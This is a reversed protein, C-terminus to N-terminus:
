FLEELRKRLNEYDHYVPLQPFDAIVNAPPHLLIGQDAALLMETDNYSDGVATVYFGLLKFSEVAKKKGGDIRLKYGTIKGSGDILLNHCFLTPYSLKKMLPGAFEYFTDSLIILQAKERLYNLFSLAGPLPEMAHIVEQIENVTFGKSDLIKLRHQMLEDYNPIDRTTLRLEEIGTKKAFNIWIEPVLCGELDFAFLLPKQPM